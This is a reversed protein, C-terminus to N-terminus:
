APVAAAEVPQARFALATPLLTALFTLAAAAAVISLYIWSPGAPTPAGKLAINFPMLTAATILTGLATGATAVFAGEITMMRLIQPATSGILRQLAFERRRAATAV